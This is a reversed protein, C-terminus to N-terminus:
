ATLAVDLAPEGRDIKRVVPVVVAVLVGATALAALAAMGGGRIAVAGLAPGASMAVCQVMAAFRRQHGRAPMAWATFRITGFTSGANFMALAALYGTLGAHLPVALPSLLGAGCVLATLWPPFRPGCFAALVAAPASALSGLAIAFGVDADGLGLGSGMPAVYSWLMMTVAVIMAMPMLAGDGAPATAEDVTAEVAAEVPLAAVADTTPVLMLLAIALPAAALTGLAAAPGWAAAMLPLGALVATSVLQQALIIIGIANQPRRCAAVATAHTLLLGMVVGLVLRLALVAILDHAAMMALCAGVGIAPAALGVAHGAGNRRWGLLAGGAMGIQGVSVVWGLDAPNVAHNAVLLTLTAPEIGTQLAALTAVIQARTRSSPGRM